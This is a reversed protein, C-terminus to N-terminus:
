SVPEPNGGNLKAKLDVNIAMSKVVVCEKMEGGRLDDQNLLSLIRRSILRFVLTKANCISVAFRAGFEALYIAANLTGVRFETLPDRLPM